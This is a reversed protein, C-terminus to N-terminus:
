PVLGNYKRHEQAPGLEDDWRLGHVKDEYTACSLQLFVRRKSRCNEEEPNESEIDDFSM